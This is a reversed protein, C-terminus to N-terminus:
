IKSKGHKEERLRKVVPMGAETVRILDDAYKILQDGHEITILGRKELSKIADKIQQITIAGCNSEITSFWVQIQNDPNSYTKNSAIGYLLVEKESATLERAKIISNIFEFIKNGDIKVANMGDIIDKETIGTGIKCDSSITINGNDEASCGISYVIDQAQHGETFMTNAAIIIEELTFTAAPDSIKPKEVNKLNSVEKKLDSIEKELKEVKVTLERLVSIM